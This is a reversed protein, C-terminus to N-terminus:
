NKKDHIVLIIDLNCQKSREACKKALNKTRRYRTVYKTFYGAPKDPKSGPMNPTKNRM